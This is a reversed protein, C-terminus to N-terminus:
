IIMSKRQQLGLVILGPVASTSRVTNAESDEGGAAAEPPAESAAGLVAESAVEPAAEQAGEAELLSGVTGLDLVQM